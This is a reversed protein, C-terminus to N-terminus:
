RWFGPMGSKLVDSIVQIYSEVKDDDDIMSGGGLLYDSFIMGMAATFTIDRVREHELTRTIGLRGIHSSFMEWSKDRSEKVLDEIEPTGSNEARLGVLYINKNERANTVFRRVSNDCLEYHNTSEELATKLQNLVLSSYCSVIERLLGAKGGFYYSLMASNTKAEAAIERIGVSSYTREAFLKAGATFIKERKTM